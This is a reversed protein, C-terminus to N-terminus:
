LLNDCESPTLTRLIIMIKENIIIIIIIIILSSTLHLSTFHLKSHTEIKKDAAFPHLFGRFKGGIICRIGSAEHRM